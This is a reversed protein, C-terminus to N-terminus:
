YNKLYRTVIEWLPVDPTNPVKLYQDLYNKYKSEDIKLLNQLHLQKNLNENMNILKSNVAKAFNDIRPGIWSNKLENSTLFITPKNFLVAFSMATSSHLLVASSNKILEATNTVEYKIGDLLNKLKHIRCQYSRPHVAFLIPLQTEIEFKKFFKVLLPYYKEEDVPPKINLLEHDPHNVHDQDVFVAYSIKNNIPKNKVNLYVDYDMSCAPIKKKDDSKKLSALGSIITLDSKIKNSNYYKQKLIKLIEQIFKKPKGLLGFLKTLFKIINRKPSPILNIDLNILLNKKNQKKLQQRIWNSKKDTPLFDVIISSNIQKSFILFDKKCTIVVHEKFKFINESRAKYFAPYMWATCDVVNVLFNKKLIEIGFRTYDRRIFYGSFLIIVKKM